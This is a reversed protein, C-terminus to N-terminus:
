DLTNIQDTKMDQNDKPEIKKQLYLSGGPCNMFKPYTEEVIDTAMKGVYDNFMLIEWEPNNSLFARVAYLENWSRNDDLVWEEPYEFPWFIDHIHVIVGSALVPLVEFLEFCVDSGTRLIHTSDIFLIDGHELERFISLDCDQVGNAFIKVRKKARGILNELLEPYPEVFTIEVKNDLYHETTDMLNASSYGSGIEIVKNPKFYRLMAHWVSGDGYSFNPNEFHYRMGKNAEETFPHDLFFPVLKHWLGIIADHNIHIGTVQHPLPHKDQKELFCKAEDTDVIPSYFHGPPVFLRNKSWIAYEETNMLEQLLESFDSGNPYRQAWYRTAAEDPMRKFIVQYLKSIVDEANVDLVTRNNSAMNQEGREMVNAEQNTPTTIRASETLQTKQRGKVIRHHLGDLLKTVKSPLHGDLRYRIARYSRGAYRRLRSRINLPISAEEVTMINKHEDKSSLITKYLDQIEVLSGPSLILPLENWKQIIRIRNNSWEDSTHDTSSNNKDQWLRYICTIEPSVTIGMIFYCRMMFDWDEATSISEDFRMNFWTIVERPYAVSMCPTRNDHLHEVLSFKAPYPTKIPGCSINAQIGKSVSTLRVAQTACRVRLLKGHNRNALKHFEEVYHSFVLDDDDLTVIYQGDALEYGVNLPRCRGGSKVNNFRIKNRLYDPQEELVEEVAVQRLKDLKHGMLLVEFDNDSQGTLCALTTRLTHVDRGTTRIVISLFPQRTKKSFDEYWQNVMDKPGPLYARVFQYSFATDDIKGRLNSILKYFSSGTSLSERSEHMEIYPDTIVTDFEEVQHLGAQHTMRQLTHQSFNIIHTHDLIGDTTYDFRGAVTRAAVEVHTVNPVSIIVPITYVAALARLAQMVGLPDPLHELTDLITISTLTREGVIDQLANFSNEYNTLELRHTEFGKKKLSALGEEDMDIGIYHMGLKEVHKAIAGFGCGIDLHFSNKDQTTVVRQLLELSHGYVNNKDFANKYIFSM